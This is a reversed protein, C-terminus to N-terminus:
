AEESDGVRWQEEVYKIFRAIKGGLEAYSELFDDIDGRRHVDRIFALHVATEDCSAQAYTLFKIFEPKYRRRGYGEAICSPIGKSSRRVQGGEEYLEFQPLTLSLEHVKVALGYSLKYIVLDRYSGSV